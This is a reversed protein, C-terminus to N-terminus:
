LNLNQFYEKGEEVREHYQPLFNFLILVPIISVKNLYTCTEQNIM